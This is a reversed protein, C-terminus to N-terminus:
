NNENPSLNDKFEQWRNILGVPIEEGNLARNKFDDGFEVAEALKEELARVDAIVEFTENCRAPALGNKKCAEMLKSWVRM